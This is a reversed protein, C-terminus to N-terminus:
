GENTREEEFIKPKQNLAFHSLDNQSIQKTNQTIHSSLVIIHTPHNRHQDTSNDKRVVVKIVQCNSPHM